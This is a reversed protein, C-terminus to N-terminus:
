RMAERPCTCKDRQKLLYRKQQQYVSNLKRGDVYNPVYITVVRTIRQEKNQFAMWTWRGLGTPDAGTATVNLAMTGIAAMATGGQQSWGSKEHSNHATKVKTPVESRFLEQLKNEETVEHWNVILESMCRVDTDTNM